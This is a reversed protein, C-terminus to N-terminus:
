PDISVTIIICLFNQADLRELPGDIVTTEGLSEVAQLFNDSLETPIQAFLVDEGYPLVQGEFTQALSKAQEYVDKKDESDILVIKDFYAARAKSSPPAIKPVVKVIIYAVNHDLRGMPGRIVTTEDISKLNRLFDGTRENPIRVFLAEEKYQARDLLVAFFDGTIEEADARNNMMRYAFNFIRKKHREYLVELAERNGKSCEMMLYEDTQTMM